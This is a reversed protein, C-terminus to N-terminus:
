KKKLKIERHREKLTTEIAISELLGTKEEATVLRSNIGGYVRKMESMITKVKLLKIQTKKVNGMDRSLNTLREELKKFM